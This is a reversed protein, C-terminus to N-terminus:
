SQGFKLCTKVPTGTVNWCTKVPTGLSKFSNECSYVSHGDSLLFGLLVPNDPSWFLNYLLWIEETLSTLVRLPTEMLLALDRLPSLDIYLLWIEETLLHWECMNWTIFAMCVDHLLFPTYVCREYLFSTMSPWYRCGSVQCFTVHICSDHCICIYSSTM